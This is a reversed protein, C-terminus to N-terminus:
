ETKLVYTCPSPDDGGIFSSPSLGESSMVETYHDHL